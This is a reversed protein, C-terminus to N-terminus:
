LAGETPLETSSKAVQNIQFGTKNAQRRAVKVGAAFAYRADGMLDLLTSKALRERAEAAKRDAIADLFERAAAVDVDVSSDDLERFVKRIADYTPKSDDIEPPVDAAISAMFARAQAELAAGSEPDYDIVYETFDLFTGLVPMRVRHIGSVHMQWMAQILYEIPVEDTGPEGWEELDRASKAEVLVTDDVPHCAVADPTAAAWDELVYLPQEVVEAKNIGHQDYWWALIAPELYHGRRQEVKAPEKPLEVRMKHWLSRPSDYRSAGLVAAVKSATMLRLWGPQGPQLDDLTLDDLITM